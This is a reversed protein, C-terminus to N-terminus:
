FWFLVLFVRGPIASSGVLRLKRHGELLHPRPSGSSSAVYYFRFTRPFIRLRSSAEKGIKRVRRQSPLDFCRLLPPSPCLLLVSNQLPDWPLQLGRNKIKRVKPDIFCILV